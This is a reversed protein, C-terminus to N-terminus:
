YAHATDAADRETETHCAFVLGAGMFRELPVFRRENKSTDIEPFSANTCDDCLTFLAVYSNPKGPEPGKIFIRTKPFCDGCIPSKCKRCRAAYNNYAPLEM